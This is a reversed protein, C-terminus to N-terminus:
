FFILVNSLSKKLSLTKASKEYALRPYSDEEVYITGCHTFGLKLALRQMVLNDIHTDIRLHNCLSYAYNLCFAGIGKQSGDAAIRHVVGYPSEDLWHGETINRYSPEIDPGHVFFFTGIINENDDTCVYSHNNAIDEHILAQPPWNTPGWQLPNGHAAMYNRAYAYIEMMRLFDDESAHRIKM